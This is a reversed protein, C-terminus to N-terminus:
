GAKPVIRSLFLLVPIYQDFKNRSIVEHCKQLALGFHNGGGSYNMWSEPRNSVPLAECAIRATSNHIIISILDSSPRTGIYKKVAAALDSWPQGDMSGSDDLCLITHYKGSKHACNYLHGDKSVTTGPASSRAIPDHWLDAQCYSKEKEEEHTLACEYPCKSFLAKEEASSPDEFGIHDWYAEHTLEDKLTSEDPGYKLTQHRRGDVAAHTCEAEKDADCPTIHIHGRGLTKCFMMCMEASGSEGVVYKREGLDINESDSIFYSNRMNGHSTKHLPESHNYEKECFYGCSPCRQDCWHVNTEDLTHVHPGDHHKHKPQIRHCCTKRDGNAQRVAQYKFESRKGKFTEETRERVLEIKVECVGGEQCLKECPHDSNCFHESTAEEESWPLANEQAYQQSMAADGHFHDRTSCSYPCKKFFCAHLCQVEQCKHVTHNKDVNIQCAGKCKSASCPAGCMHMKANCRHDGSHDVTLSCTKNCNVYSNFACPKGCTHSKVGCNHIGDHGMPDGCPHHEGDQLCYTCGLQCKHHGLCSHGKDLDHHKQRLCGLYCSDCKLLCLTWRKELEAIPTEVRDKLKIIEDDDKWHAVNIQIWHKVRSARRQVLKHLFEQFGFQWHPFNDSDRKLLHEEFHNRFVEVLNADNDQKLPIDVDSVTITVVQGPQLELDFPDDPVATNDDLSRLSSIDDAPGKEATLKGYHVAMMFNDTLFRLRLEVAQRDLSTWDKLSIKAMLHTLTEKFHTGSHFLPDCRDLEDRIMELSQYYEARGLPPFPFVQFGKKYMKSIFNNGKNDKTIADMKTSFENVLDQIDRDAVDKIVILFTGSFLSDNGKILDVGSQFRSFMQEIDRDLRFETKFLTINSIASNMVSLLMDEQDTREFSGLGEFDMIVYLCHQSQRMTMWCGDTCRGGAINFLSGSLHNLTYSKGTSQKGMSTVVKVPGDWGGLVAEYLGLRIQSAFDLANQGMEEFPTLKGDSLVLFENGEARTIQIPVLCILNRIWAGLSQPTAEQFTFADAELSLVQLANLLGLSRIPKETKDLQQVLHKVRQILSEKIQDHVPTTCVFTVQLSTDTDLLLSGVPFKDYIHFLYDVLTKQEQGKSDDVIQNAGLRRVGYSEEKTTIQVMMSTILGEELNYQVMHDQSNLNGGFQTILTHQLLHPNIDLPGQIGSAIAELSSTLYCASHVEETLHAKSFIILAEGRPSVMMHRQFVDELPLEPRLLRKETIDFLRLRNEYDLLLLHKKEPVILLQKIENSGSYMSLDQQCVPSVSKFNDSFRLVQIMSCGDHQYYVALLRTSEDFACLKCAKGFQKDLDLTNNNLNRVIIKMQLHQQALALLRRNKLLFFGIVTVSEPLEFGGIPSLKPTVSKDISHLQAESIDMQHVTYMNVAETYYTEEWAIEVQNSWDQKCSKFHLPLADPAHHLNLDMLYTDIYTTEAEKKQTAHKKEFKDGPVKQYHGKADSRIYQHQKDVLAQFESQIKLYVASEPDPLSQDRKLKEYSETHKSDEFFISTVKAFIGKYHNLFSTLTHSKTAQDYVTELSDEKYGNEILAQAWWYREIKDFKTSYELLKNPFAESADGEPALDPYSLRWALPHNKRFWNNCKMIRTKVEEEIKKTQSADWDALERRRIEDQKAHIQGLEDQVAQGGHGIVFAKKGEENMQNFTLTYEEGLKLIAEAFNSLSYKMRKSRTRTQPPKKVLAILAPKSAGPVIWEHPRENPFQLVFGPKVTIADDQTVSSQVAFKFLRNNTKLPQHPLTLAKVAGSDLCIFMKHCLAALYRIFKCAINASSVAQYSTKDPSYVVYISAEEVPSRRALIAYLGARQLKSALGSGSPIVKIKDLFALISPLDGYIAYMKCSIADLDKFHIYSADKKSSTPHVDNCFRAIEERELLVKEVLSQNQEDEFVSMLRYVEVHVPEEVSVPSAPLPVSAAPAVSSLIGSPTTSLHIEGHGQQLPYWERKPSSLSKLPLKLTAVPGDLHTDTHYVEVRLVETNFDIPLFQFTQNWFPSSSSIAKSSHCEKALFLRVFVSSQGAVMNRGEIVTVELKARSSAQVIPDSRGQSASAPLSTASNLHLPSPPVVSTPIMPSPGAHTPSTPPSTVYPSPIPTLSPSTMPSAIPSPPIPAVAQQALLRELKKLHGIKVGFQRLVSRLPLLDEVDQFGHSDILLSNLTQLDNRALFDTMSTGDDASSRRLLKSRWGLKPLVGELKSSLDPTQRIQDVSSVGILLLPEYTDILGISNLWERLPQSQLIDERIKFLAERPLSSKFEDLVQILEPAITEWDANLDFSEEAFISAYEGIGLDILRQRFSAPRPDPANLKMLIEAMMTKVEPDLEGIDQPTLALLDEATSFGLEELPALFHGLAHNELFDELTTMLSASVRRAKKAFVVKVAKVLVAHSCDTQEECCFIQLTEKKPGFFRNWKVRM